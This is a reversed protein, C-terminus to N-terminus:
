KINKTHMKTQMLRHEGLADVTCFGTERPVFKGCYSFHKLESIVFFIAMFTVLYQWCVSIASRNSMSIANFQDNINKKM